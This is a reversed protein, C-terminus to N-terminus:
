VSPEEDGDEDLVVTELPAEDTDHQAFYLRENIEYKKVISSYLAAEKRKYKKLLRYVDHIKSQNNVRYIKEIRLRIEQV